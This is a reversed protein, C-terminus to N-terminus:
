NEPGLILKELVVGIRAAIRHRANNMRRLTPGVTEDAVQSLAVAMNGAMVRARDRKSMEWYAISLEDRATDRDHQPQSSTLRDVRYGGQPLMEVRIDPVKARDNAIATKHAATLRLFHTGKEPRKDAPIRADDVTRNFIVLLGERPMIHTAPRDFIAAVPEGEADIFTAALQAPRAPAKNRWGSFAKQNPNSLGSVLWKVEDYSGRTERPGNLGRELKLISAGDIFVSTGDLLPDEQIGEYYPTRDHGPEIEAQDAAM